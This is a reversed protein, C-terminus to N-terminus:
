GTNDKLDGCPWNTRISSSRYLASSALHHALSPSLERVEICLCGFAFVDSAPTRVSGSKGFQEPNILEPAMWYISGARNSTGHNTADSVGSLGFDALCARWDQDILINAGKLDGHVVNHSNLYELGKAVEFLLKDVNARGHAQLYNLVTGHEMWPSVICLTPPFSEQDIGLFALIHPNHLQKWVLAERHIERHLRRLEQGHLYRRVCKLAVTQDGYSARYIDGFGGRFTPHEGRGSVGTIFLSSPLKDSAESLKRIIRHAKRRHGSAVFVDKDLMEQVVDLFSQAPDGELKLVDNETSASDLGSILLAAIGEEDTRLADRLNSDDELGLESSLELLTKRCHLSKVVGTVVDGFEMSDCYGDLKMWLRASEERESLSRGLNRPCAKKLFMILSQYVSIKRPTLSLGGQLERGPEAPLHSGALGSLAFTTGARGPIPMAEYSNLQTLLCSSSPVAAHSADHYM